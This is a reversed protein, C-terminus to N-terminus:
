QIGECRRLASKRVANTDALVTFKGVHEDPTKGKTECALLKGHLLM